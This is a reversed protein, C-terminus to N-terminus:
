LEPEIDHRRTAENLDICSSKRFQLSRSGAVLCVVVEPFVWVTPRKLGEYGPFHVNMEVNFKGQDGSSCQKCAM